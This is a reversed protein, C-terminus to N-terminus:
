IIYYLFIIYYIICSTKMLQFTNLKFDVSFAIETCTYIRQIYFLCTLICLILLATQPRDV